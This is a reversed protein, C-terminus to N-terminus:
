SDLGKRALFASAQDAIQLNNLDSFLFHMNGTIGIEQLHVLTADGGHRNVARGGLAQGNRVPGELQGARRHRDARRSTTGTTCSSRRAHAHRGSGRLHTEPAPGDSKGSPEFRAM